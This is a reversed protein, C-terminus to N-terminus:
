RASGAPKASRVSPRTLVYPGIQRRKVNGRRMVALALLEEETPPTPLVKRSYICVVFGEDGIPSKPTMATAATLNRACVIHHDSGGETLVAVAAHAAMQAKLRDSETSM